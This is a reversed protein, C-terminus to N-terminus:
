RCTRASLSRSGGDRRISTWACRRLRRRRRDRAVEVPRSAASSDRIVPGGSRRIAKGAGEGEDRISESDRRVPPEMALNSILQFLHNQIVGRVNGRDYLSRGQIGDEAMISGASSPNRNWVARALRQRLPTSPCHGTAERNHDIRSSRARRPAHIRNLAQASPLDDFPKVVIRAGTACGARANRVVSGFLAPPITITAGGLPVSEAPADAIAPDGYDRRQMPASLKPRRGDPGGHKEVSDRPCSQEIGAPGAVGIVPTLQDSKALAQLSPLDGLGIAPPMSFVLANFPNNM